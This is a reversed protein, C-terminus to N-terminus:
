FYRTIALTLAKDRELPRLAPDEEANLPMTLAASVSTSGGGLRREVAVDVLTADSRWDQVLRADLETGRLDQFRFVAGVAVDNDFIEVPAGPPRDDFYGEAYVIIDGQDGLARTFTREIGLGAGFFGGGTQGTRYIAEGRLVYQGIAYQAALGTQSVQRYTPTLARPGRRGLQVEFEPEDVHGYFQTLELELRDFRRYLRAGLQPSVQGNEFDADEFPLAAVRYRDKGENLRSARALASGFLGVSWSDGFYEFRVGPAGLRIDGQYDAALDRANVIGVLNEANLFGWPLDLTGAQVTVGGTGYELYTARADAFGVDERNAALNARADIQVSLGDGLRFSDDVKLELTGTGGEAQDDFRPSQPFGTVSLSLSGGVPLEDASAIRPALILAGAVVGTALPKRAGTM